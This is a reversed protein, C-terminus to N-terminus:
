FGKGLIQKQYIKGKLIYSRVVIEVTL